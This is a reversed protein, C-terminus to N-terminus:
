FSRKRKHIIHLAAAKGIEEHPLGITSLPPLFLDTVGVMNDFGLIGIDKPCYINLL